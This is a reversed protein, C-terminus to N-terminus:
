SKQQPAILARDCMLYMFLMLTVAFAAFVGNMLFLIVKLGANLGKTAFLTMGANLLVVVFIVAYVVFFTYYTDCILSSPIQKTWTPEM